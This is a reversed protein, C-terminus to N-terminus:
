PIGLTMCEKGTMGTGIDAEEVGEEVLM